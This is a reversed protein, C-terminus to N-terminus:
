HRGGLGKAVVARHSATKFAETQATVAQKLQPTIKAAVQSSAENADFGVNLNQVTVTTGGKGGGGLDDALKGVQDAADSTKAAANATLGVADSVELIGSLVRLLAELPPLALEAGVKLLELAPPIASRIVDAVDKMIAGLEETHDALFQLIPESAAREIGDLAQHAQAEMAIYARGNKASQDDVVAGLAEATDGFKKMEQGTLNFIPTLEAGGRGLLEMEVRTRQAQDPIKQLGAHVAEFIGQTNGLNAKLFEASIGLDQFAKVNKEQGEVADSVNRQLLKFGSSLSEVGVGADQAVASMRSYFEVSVGAKEAALSANAGAHGVEDFMELLSKGAEIAADAVGLLPDIMSATLVSGFGSAGGEGASIGALFPAIDLGLSGIVSGADFSM